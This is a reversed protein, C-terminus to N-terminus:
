KYLVTGFIGTAANTNDTSSSGGTLCYGIGTAYGVGIPLVRVIGGAGGAAAAPPVPVSRIFGTASFCTPAAATNYLRLYYVTTTTNVLDFGYFNGASGKCSNSNTSAASVIVCELVSDTTTATGGLSSPTIVQDTALTVRASGTGTNGAGMLPTVGNIQAINVSQNATLAGITNAGTALKVLGTSDDALTVRQVGTGAAGNGMTINVGNLQTINYGNGSVANDILQLATLAAGNEQVVFTGANTVAHSGVTVTGTIPIGTSAIFRLKASISGTASAGDANAGFPDATVTGMNATVTGSVPVPTARLQADTLPGSATVTGSVPITTTVPTTGIQSISVPNQAYLLVSGGLATLVTVIWQVRKASM